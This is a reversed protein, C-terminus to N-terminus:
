SGFYLLQPSIFSALSHKLKGADVLVLNFITPKTVKLDASSVHLFLISHSKKKQMM